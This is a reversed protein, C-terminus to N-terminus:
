TEPKRRQAQVVSWEYMGYTNTPKRPPMFQSYDISDCEGSPHIGVFKEADGELRILFGEGSSALAQGIDFPRMM